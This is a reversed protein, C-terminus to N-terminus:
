GKEEQLSGLGAAMGKLRSRSILGGALRARPKLGNSWSSTQDHSTTSGKITSPTANHTSSAARIPRAAETEWGRGHWLARVSAPFAVVEIRGPEPHMTMRSPGASRRLLRLSLLGM